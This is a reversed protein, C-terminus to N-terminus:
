KPSVIRRAVRAACRSFKGNSKSPCIIGKSTSSSRAGSHSTSSRFARAFRWFQYGARSRTRSLRFSGATASRTSRNIWYRLIPFTRGCFNRPFIPVAQFYFATWRMSHFMEPARTGFKSTLINPLFQAFPSLTKQAFGLLWIQCLRIQSKGMAMYLASRHQAHIYGVSQALFQFGQSKFVFSSGDSYCQVIELGSESQRQATVPPKMSRARDFDCYEKCYKSRCVLAPKPEI